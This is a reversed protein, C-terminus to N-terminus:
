KKLAEQILQDFVRGVDLGAARIMQPVISEASLGPTTNVEIVHPVNNIIIYDVRAVGSLGLKRYINKTLTQILATLDDSIRAPTIEQSAGEYKAQFDFFENESVIETLPLATLDNGVKFVGCTVEPGEMFSEIMVSTGHEFAAKVAAELEAAEKVKTVGFSSGGDNPKVFCPLGLKAVIAESDVPDDQTLLISAACDFGLQKLLENCFFKNFTIASCVQSPTTYPIGMLDLYGQLIGDEGPTGHITIYACDFTMHEGNLTFSFDGKNMPLEGQDTVVTWGSEVIRVEYAEWLEKSISGMVTEASKFSIQAEHSFGGSIVAVRKM